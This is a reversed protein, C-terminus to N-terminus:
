KNEDEKTRQECRRCLASGVCFNATRDIPFPVRGFWVNEDPTNKVVNQCLMCTLNCGPVIRKYHDECLEQYSSGQLHGSM